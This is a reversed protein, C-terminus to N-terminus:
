NLEATNEGNYETLMLGIYNSSTIIWNKSSEVIIFYPAHHSHIYFDRKLHELTSRPLVYCPLPSGWGTRTAHM